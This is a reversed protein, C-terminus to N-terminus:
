AGDMEAGIRWMTVGPDPRGTVVRWLPAEGDEAYWARFQGLEDEGYMELAPRGIFVARQILLVDDSCFEHEAATGAIADVARGYLRPDEGLLVHAERWVITRRKVAPRSEARPRIRLADVVGGPGDITRAVRGVELGRELEACLGELDHIRDGDLTCVHSDDLQALLAGVDIAFRERRRCAESTACLHREELLQGVSLQWPVVRAIAGSIHQVAGRM